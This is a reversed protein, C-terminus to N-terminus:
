QISEALWSDSTGKVFCPTHSVHFLGQKAHIFDQAQDSSLMFPIHQHMGTIGAGLLCFFNM